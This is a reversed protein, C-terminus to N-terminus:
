YVIVWGDRELDKYQEQNLIYARVYEDTEQSVGNECIDNEEEEGGLYEEKKQLEDSYIDGLIDKTKAATTTVVTALVDRGEHWLRGVYYATM